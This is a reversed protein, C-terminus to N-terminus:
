IPHHDYVDPKIYYDSCTQFEVFYSLAATQRFIDSHHVITRFSVRPYCGPRRPGTSIPTTSCKTHSLFSTTHYIVITKCPPYHPPYVNILPVDVSFVTIERGKLIQWWQLCLSSLRENDIRLVHVRMRDVHTKDSTRMNISISLSRRDNSTQHQDFSAHVWWDRNAAIICHQSRVALSLPRYMGPPSASYIM